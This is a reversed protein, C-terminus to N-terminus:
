TEDSGDDKTEPVIVDYSGGTMCQSQSVSEGKRALVLIFLTIKNTTNDTGTIIIYHINKLVILHLKSVM